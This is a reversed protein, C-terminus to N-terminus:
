IVEALRRGITEAAIDIAICGRTGLMLNIVRAREKTGNQLRVRWVCRADNQLRVRWVCGTGDVYFDGRFSSARGEFRVAGRGRGGRAM